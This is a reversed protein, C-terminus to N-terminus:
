DEYGNPHTSHWKWASAVISDLNDYHVEWGLTEKALTSDAYLAPPDGPRREDYEITITKGSVKEVADIVEKVSYPKGVGLNLFLQTGPNNLM